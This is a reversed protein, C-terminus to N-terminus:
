KALEAILADTFGVAAQAWGQADAAYADWQLGHVDRGRRGALMGQLAATAIYARLSQGHGVHYSRIKCPKGDPGTADTWVEHFEPFAPGGDKAKESM